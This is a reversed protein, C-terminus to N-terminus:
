TGVEPHMPKYLNSWCQKIALGDQYDASFNCHMCTAPVFPLPDVACMSAEIRCSAPYLTPSYVEGM